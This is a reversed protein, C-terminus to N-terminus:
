QIEIDTLTDFFENLLDEEEKDPEPLPPYKTSIPLTEPPPTFQQQQEDLKPDSTQIERNTITQEDSEPTPQPPPSKNPLPRIDTIKVAEDRDKTLSEFQAEYDLDEINPLVLDTRNDFVVDSCRIVKRTSSIYVYYITGYINGYGVLYGKFARAKTRHFYPTKKWVWAKCGWTRLYAIYPTYYETHLKLWACLRQYPSLNKPNSSSPLLNLVVM